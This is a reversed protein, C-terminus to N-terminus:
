KARRWSVEARGGASSVPTIWTLADDTLVAIPRTQTTGDWNPYSSADLHLTLMKKEEDLGYRGFFSIMGLVAAKYEDATGKLKDNAAFKPRIDSMAQLSYHGDPSFIALGRPHPGYNPTRTGDEAVTDVLLLSWSGVILEKMSKPSAAQQLQGQAFATGSMLCAGLVATTSTTLINRRNVITRWDLQESADDDSGAARAPPM